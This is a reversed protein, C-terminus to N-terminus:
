GLHIQQAEVKVLEKANTLVNTGRLSMNQDARYDVTGSRVQDLGEVTRTSQRAFQTLREVFSELANGILRINGISASMEKGIATLRGITTTAIGCNLLLDASSMALRGGASLNVGNDASLSMSGGSVTLTTDGAFAIRAPGDGARELVAIIYVCAASEGSVLVTDGLEPELLCSAARRTGYMGLATKVAYGEPGSGLVQGSIHIPAAAARATFMATQTKM